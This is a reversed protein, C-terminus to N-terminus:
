PDVVKGMTLNDDGDFGRLPGVLECALNLYWAVFWHPIWETFGMDVWVPFSCKTYVTDSEPILVSEYVHM